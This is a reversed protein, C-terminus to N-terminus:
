GFSGNVRSLGAHDAVAKYWWMMGTRVEVLDATLMAAYKSPIKWNTPPINRQIIDEIASLEDPPPLM